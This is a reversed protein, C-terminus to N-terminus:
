RTLVVKHSRSGEASEFRAFYIGSPVPRGAADTGDWSLQHRGAEIRGDVLTRVLRGSVDVVALRVPSSAANASLSFSLETAGLSPNPAVSLPDLRALGPEDMGGPDSGSVLWLVTKEILARANNPDPDATPMANPPVCNYVAKSGNGRENRVAVPLSSHNYLIASATSSPNVQDVRNAGSPFTLAMSVGDTIPDGGVGTISTATVGDAHTEVGMYERLFLRTGSVFNLFDMSSVFMKGGDDMYAKIATTDATTFLSSLFYGHQWLVVDFGAMNNFTPGLSGHGNYVDWDEYLWGIGDLADTWVTEDVRTGDDDVFLISYSANFVRLSLPYTRGSNQSETIFHGTGIRKVNDTLIRLAIGKGELGGFNFATASSYWNPDGEVQFECPWGFGNDFSLTMVDPSATDNTITGEFYAYGSRSPVSAVRRPINVTFDTLYPIKAGQIIEKTGSTKQLVAAAWLQAQDWGANVPFTKVVTVEDGQNVLTTVPENKIVRTINDFSTSPNYYCDDEMIFVTAQVGTQAVPDVLRYTVTITGTNGSISWVGEIEVPSVNSVEGMRTMYRSRYTTYSSNCNSAGVVAYKGDIRVDPVGSVGYWSARAVADAHSFQQSTHSDVHIFTQPFEAELM